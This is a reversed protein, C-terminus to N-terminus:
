KSIDKQVWALMGHFNRKYMLIPGVGMNPNLVLELIIRYHGKELGHLYTHKTNQNISTVKFHTKM